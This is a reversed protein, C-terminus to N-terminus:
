PRDGHRRAELLQEILTIAPAERIDDTGPKFAIGWIAFRRGALSGDRADDLDFHKAIKAM